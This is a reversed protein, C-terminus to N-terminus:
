LMGMHLYSCRLRLLRLTTVSDTLNTSIPVHSVELFAIQLGNVAMISVLHDQCLDM